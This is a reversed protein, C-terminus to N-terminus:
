SRKKIYCHLCTDEEKERTTDRFFGAACAVRISKSNFPSIFCECFDLHYVKKRLIDDSVVSLTDKMYGHGRAEKILAYSLDVYSFKSTYLIGSVDLFGIPNNAYYISFISGYLEDHQLYNLNLFAEKELNWLYGPMDFENSESSLGYVEKDMTLHHLLWLDHENTPEIKKIRLQGKIPYFEM